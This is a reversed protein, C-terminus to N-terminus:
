AVIGAGVGVAPVPAAIVSGKLGEDIWGAAAVAVRLQNLDNLVLPGPTTSEQGLLRRHDYFSYLPNPIHCTPYPLSRRRFRLHSASLPRLRGTSTFV